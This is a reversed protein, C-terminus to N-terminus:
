HDQGSFRLKVFRAAAVMGIASRAFSFGDKRDTSKREVGWGSFDQIVNWDISNEFEISSSVM